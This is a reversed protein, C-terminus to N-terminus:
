ASKRARAPKSSPKVLSLRKTSEPAKESSKKPAKRTSEQDSDDSGSKISKRLADMLNVVKGSRPAPEDKDIPVHNVKAEVMAKLAAEYEDHFKDPAFKASKRQILEKALSLQDAEVTTKKIEGFYEAPDRIEEAYRLTYAMMGRGAVDDDKAELPASIGVLHERGGFAIKGLAVKHTDQLAKRIVAFAEAQSDGDPV